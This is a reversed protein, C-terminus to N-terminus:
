RGFKKLLFKPTIKRSIAHFVLIFALAWFISGAMMSFNSEQYFLPFLTANFIGFWLFRDSRLSMWRLGVGIIGGIILSLGISKYPGYATYFDVSWPINWSTVMDDDDIIKYKKGFSNGKKEMPKSPWFVRPIHNRIADAIPNHASYPVKQPTMIIVHNTLLSHSSRRAVAHISSQIKAPSIEPPINTFFTLQTDAANRSFNKNDAVHGSFNKIHGYSLITVSGLVICLIILKLRRFYIAVTAIIVFTQVIPTIQGIPIEIVIKASILLISLGIMLWRAYGVMALSIIITLAFLWSPGRLQPLSPVTELVPILYFAFHIGVFTLATIMLPKQTDKSAIAERASLPARMGLYCGMIMAVVFTAEYIATPASINPAFPLHSVYSSAYSSFVGHFFFYYASLFGIFPFLRLSQAEREIFIAAIFLGSLFLTLILQPEITM